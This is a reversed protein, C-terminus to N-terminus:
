APRPATLRHSAQIYARGQQAWATSHVLRITKIRPRAGLYAAIAASLVVILEEPPQEPKTAAEMRALREELSAVQRRLAEIAEMLASETTTM